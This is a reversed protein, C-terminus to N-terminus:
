GIKTNLLLLLHQILIRKVDTMLRQSDAANLKSDCMENEISTVGKDVFGCPNIASFAQLRTTVNLAFGHMTVGRSIKVGIACIKREQPLGCDIWVGTAGEVRQAKISYEALTRIVAEELINVYDKVGLGHNHLNIIPYVVLQGPGHYTIDGGREIRICETDPPLLLLNEQKGHKGLTYVDKHETLYIREEAGNIVEQQSQKQLEWVDRYSTIGLDRIQICPTM